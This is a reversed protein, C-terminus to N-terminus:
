EDGRREYYPNGKEIRQEIMEELGNSWMMFGFLDSPIEHVWIFSKASLYTQDMDDDIAVDFVCTEPDNGWSILEKGHSYNFKNSFQIDKYKQLLTSTGGNSWITIRHGRAKFWDFLWRVAEENRGVLTGRIDFVVSLRKM